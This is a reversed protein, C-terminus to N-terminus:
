IVAKLDKKKKEIYKVQELEGIKKEIERKLM